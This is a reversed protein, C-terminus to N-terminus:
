NNARVLNGTEDIVIVEGLNADRVSQEIKELDGVVLWLMNDPTVHEKASQNVQALDIKQLKSVYTDWYSEDLGYKVLTAIDSGVAGATEWRGPLTLTRKSLSRSLESDKAPQSGIIGNLEKYIELMSEATKDSQVPARVFFPRQGQTRQISSRAGYSWGKDERLNLNIRSNFGAGLVENMLQLPLEGDFGYKPLMKAATIASQESGSRNILYVVSKEFPAIDAINKQPVDGSPLSSLSKEALPRLEDMSINGTVILTANNAKFWTRHYDQLDAVTISAVSQEDGSGSFPASYAHNKGYLLSPLVRSGIGFPSSKEQEIGAIQQKKLRELEAEPFAPNLVVDAFIEMSPELNDKLTNLSVASSDLGAGAGLATGLQALKTSIELSDLKTTGEDLMQMAINATGNKLGQDAAFGADFLLQMNVVPIQDRQALIIKLGNSLTAKELKDFSVAPAAGVAPLGLSRDVTSPKVSFQAHPLVRLNYEGDTLWKESTEVIDNATAAEIREISNKYYAPDDGFVQNRALIDSKGGFGGVRELGRIFGARLGAKVRSLEEKTPGKNLFKAMEEDIAQDIYDLKDKDLATAIIGFLGGIESTFSFASINSAVQENYVLRNYLRSKKDSSLVDSALGLYDAEETGWGPINWIKYIRAQPVRDYMVQQHLGSRKAIWSKQKIQPPGAEIHGFYKEVLQKVSNAEVDGAIVITANAAGYKTKFWEHVDDVSAANLDELSGIVSWSYPHGQPYVNELITSFVKGYPQNEGQRKENKVVGRQEDLKAQDIAGLLHGMRDSELWLTMELANKPVVQFYNTRDQSTTGNIGTGGVKDFAQFWDDDNNESGNFMLHEFLHAFGTRGEKEDKSGVHYWVNVAVVPAKRDEHVILTLGNDLVFKEFPIDFDSEAADVWDLASNSSVFNLFFFLLILLFSHKM